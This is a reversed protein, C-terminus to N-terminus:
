PLVSLALRDLIRRREAEYDALATYSYEGGVNESRYATRSLALRVLDIVVAKRRATDDAPEYVVVVRPSWDGGLRDIQGRDPWVFFGDGATLATSTAGTTFDAYETVSVVASIPREVFLTAGTPAATETLELGDSWAPGVVDAVDAEVREIVADLDDDSMGVPTIAKFEAASVLNTM